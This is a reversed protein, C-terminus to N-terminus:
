DRRRSGIEVCKTAARQVNVFVIAFPTFPVLITLWHLTTWQQIHNYDVRTARMEAEAFMNNIRAAIIGDHRFACTVVCFM